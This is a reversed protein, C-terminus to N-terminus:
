IVLNASTLQSMSIISPPWSSCKAERVGPTSMQSVPNIFRQLSVSLNRNIFQKTFVFATPVDASHFRILIFLFSDRM